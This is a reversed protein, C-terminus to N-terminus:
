AATRKPTAKRKAVQARLRPGFFNALFAKQRGTPPPFTRGIEEAAARDEPSLQPRTM